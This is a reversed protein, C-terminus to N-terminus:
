RRRYRMPTLDVEWTEGPGPVAAFDKACVPCWWRDPGVRELALVDQRCAFCRPPVRPAPRFTQRIKAILTM